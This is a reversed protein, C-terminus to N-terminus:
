ASIVPPQLRRMVPEDSARDDDREAAVGQEPPALRRVDARWRVFTSPAATPARPARRVAAPEHDRVAVAGLDPTSASWDSADPSM